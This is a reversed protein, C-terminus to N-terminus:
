KKIQTNNETFCKAKIIKYFSGNQVNTSEYFVSAFENIVSSVKSFIKISNNNALHKFIQFFWRANKINRPNLDINKM